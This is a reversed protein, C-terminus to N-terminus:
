LDEDLGQDVLCRIGALLRSSRCTEAQCSLDRGRMVLSRWAHCTEAECLFKRGLRQSSARMPLRRRRGSTRVLLKRRRSLHPGCISTPARSWPDWVFTASGRCELEGAVVCLARTRWAMCAGWSAARAPPQNQCFGYCRVSRGRLGRRMTGDLRQLV